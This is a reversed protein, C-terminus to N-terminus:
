FQGVKTKTYKRVKYLPENELRQLVKKQSSDLLELLWEEPLGMGSIGLKKEMHKFYATRIRRARVYARKRSHEIHLKERNHFLDNIKDLLKFGFDGLAGDTSLDILSLLIILLLSLLVGTILIVVLWDYWEM